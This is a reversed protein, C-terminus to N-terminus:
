SWLNGILGIFFHDLGFDLGSLISLTEGLRLEVHVLELADQLLLMIGMLPHHTLRNMLFSAFVALLVCLPLRSLHRFRVLNFRVDRLVYDLLALAHVCDLEVLTHCCSGLGRV